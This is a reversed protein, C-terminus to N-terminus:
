RYKRPILFKPTLPKIIRVLRPFKGAIELIIDKKGESNQVKLINIKWWNRFAHELYPHPFTQEFGNNRYQMRMERSIAEGDPFKDYYGPKRGFKEQQYFIQREIYWETMELLTKNGPAHRSLMLEHTGIDFGSFHFFRLPYKGNIVLRGDEDKDVHRYYLNWTAVNYNPLRLIKMAEFFCPALDIWRQDTFLGRPADDYCYGLCRDAWWNLFAAGEGENRLALFGLNFVGHRLCGLMEGDLMDIENVAPVTVHPTLVVPHESIAQLLEEMPSYVVIDPDIYFVFEPKRDRFIKQFAFPKVATCLEVVTHSFIWAELNPAPIELEEVTLVQDFVSYNIEEDKKDSLVCTFYLDPYIKKLSEVLISAKPIYANNVSTFVTLM